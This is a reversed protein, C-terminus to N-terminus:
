LPTFIERVLIKSVVLYSSAEHEVSTGVRDFHRRLCSALHGAVNLTVISETALSEAVVMLSSRRFQEVLAM